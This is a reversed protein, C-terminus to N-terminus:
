ACAPADSNWRNFSEVESAALRERAQSWLAAWRAPDGLETEPKSRSRAVFGPFARRGTAQGIPNYRLDFSWRVHDSHNSFSCHPTLRHMLLVSGPKMPLPVADYYNINLCGKKLREDFSLRRKIPQSPGGSTEGRTTTVTM